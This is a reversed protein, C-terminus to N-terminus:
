IGNSYIHKDQTVRGKTKYILKTSRQKEKQVREKRWQTTKEKIHPNQNGRKYRWVRILLTMSCNVIEDALIVLLCNCM